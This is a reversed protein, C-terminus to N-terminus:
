MSVVHMLKPLACIEVNIHFSDVCLSVYGFSDLVLCQSCLQVYAKSLGVVSVRGEQGPLKNLPFIVHFHGFM